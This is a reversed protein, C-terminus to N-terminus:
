HGRQAVLANITAQVTNLQRKDKTKTAQVVARALRRKLVADLQEAERENAGYYLAGLVQAAKHQTSLVLM